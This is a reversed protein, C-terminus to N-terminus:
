YFIYGLVNITTFKRIYIISKINSINSFLFKREYKGALQNKYGEM